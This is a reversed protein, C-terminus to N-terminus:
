KEAARRRSRGTAAALAERLAGVDLEGRLELAIPQNYALNAPTGGLQISLWIEEQEPTVPATHSLEGGAFPDFDDRVIAM